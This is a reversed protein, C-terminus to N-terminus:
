SSTIMCLPFAVSETDGSSPSFDFTISYLGPMPLVLDDLEYAGGGQEIVAGPTTSHMHEPMASTEVITAGTVPAGSPDTLSLTWTNGPPEVSQVPAAPALATLTFNYGGKSVLSQGASVSGQDATCDGGDTSVGSSAAQNSDSPESKSSCGALAAALSAGLAFVGTRAVRKRERRRRLAFGLVFLALSALGSRSPATPAARCSCGSSDASSPGAPNGSGASGSPAGGTGASASTAGASSSGASGSAGANSVGGAVSTGAGSAGGNTSTSSGASGAAGGAGGSSAGGNSTGVGGGAGGNKAGGSSAGASSAGGASTGGAGSAGGSGGAGGSGVPVTTGCASPGPGTFMTGDMCTAPGTSTAVTVNITAHTADIDQVAFTVGGAPDTYSGGAVLGEATNATAPNMDLVWTFESTKNSAPVDGGVLVLVDPAPEKGDISVKTRLELYYKSLNVVTATGTTNHFPRTKPMPIQLAQVGDCPLETPLLVYTGTATARVGNCGGIFGEYWKEYSNFHACGSGMVTHRDGYEAGMCTTPDDAFSAATCTISNSHMLGLNHGVEQNLVTCSTSANYWSGSAPRAATGEGGLGGWACSAYNSGIYQMWHDYTKGLTTPWAKEIANIADQQCTGLTTVMEPGLIDGTFNFGGYSNENYFQNLGAQTATRTGFIATNADAASLNVGDGVDMLVFGVTATKKTVTSLAQTSVEVGDTTAETQEQYREVTLGDTTPTGWVKLQTWPQLGPDSAFNLKIEAVKADPSALYFTRESHGDLYDIRYTHLEGRISGDAEGEGGASSCAALLPLCALLAYASARSCWKGSFGNEISDSRRFTM